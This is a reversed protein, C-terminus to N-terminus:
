NEIEDVRFFDIGFNEAAQKDWKSDGFFVMKDKSVSHKECIYQLGHPKPKMKPVDDRGYYAYFFDNIEHKKLCFQVTTRFNNSLVHFQKDKIEDESFLARIRHLISVGVKHVASFDRAARNEERELEKKFINVSEKGYKKKAYRCGEWLPQFSVSEHLEQEAVESLKNKIDSWPANLDVLTGDLDFIFCDKTRLTPKISDFTVM